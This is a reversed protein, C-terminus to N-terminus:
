LYPGHSNDPAKENELPLPVCVIPDQYIKSRLIWEAQEKEKKGKRCRSVASVRVSVVYESFFSKTRFEAHKGSM